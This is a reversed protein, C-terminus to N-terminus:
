RKEHYLDKLCLHCPYGNTNQIKEYHLEQTAICTYSYTINECDIYNAHINTGVITNVKIKDAMINDGNVHNGYINRAIIERAFISCDVYMDKTVYIDESSLDACFCSYITVDDYITYINDHESYYKELDEYNYITIM